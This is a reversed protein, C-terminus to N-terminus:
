PSPQDFCPPLPSGDLEPLGVSLGRKSGAAKGDVGAPRKDVYMTGDLSVAEIRFSM